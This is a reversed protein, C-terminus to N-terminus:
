VKRPRASGIILVDDSPPLYTKISRKFARDAAMKRLIKQYNCDLGDGLILPSENNSRINELNMKRAGIVHKPGKSMNKEEEGITSEEM